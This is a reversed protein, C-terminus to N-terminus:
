KWKICKIWFHTYLYKSKHWHAMDHVICMYMYACLICQIHICLIFKYYLYHQTNLPSHVMRSFFIAFQSLSFSFSFFCVVVVCFIFWYWNHPGYSTSACLLAGIYKFSLSFFFWSINFVMYDMAFLYWFWYCYDIHVVNWAVFYIVACKWDVFYHWINWVYVIFIAAEIACIQTNIHSGQPIVKRYWVSSRCVSFLVTSFKIIDCNLDNIAKKRAFDYMISTCRKIGEM